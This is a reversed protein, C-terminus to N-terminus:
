DSVTKRKCGSRTCARQKKTSLIGESLIGYMNNTSPEIAGATTYRTIYQQVRKTVEAITIQTQKSWDLVDKEEKNSLLFKNTNTKLLLGVKQLDM